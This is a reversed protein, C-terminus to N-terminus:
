KLVCKFANKKQKYLFIMKEESSASEVTINDSYFIHFESMADNIANLQM